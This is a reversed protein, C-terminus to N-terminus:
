HEIDMLVREIRRRMELSPLPEKLKKRLTPEALKDLDALEGMARQRVSFRDNDLDDMLRSIIKPDPSSAPKLRASLFLISHRDGRTLSRIAQHARAADEGVLDKWCSQLESSELRIAPEDPHNHIAWILVTADDGASALRKSDPSWALSLVADDHGILR